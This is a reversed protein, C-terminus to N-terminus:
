APLCGDPVADSDPYAPAGYLLAGSTHSHQLRQISAEALLPQAPVGSGGMLLPDAFAGWEVTPDALGDAMGEVFLQAAFISVERTDTVSDRMELIWRGAVPAGLFETPAYLRYVIQSTSLLTLTWTKSYTGCSLRVDIPTASSSGSALRVDLVLGSTTVKGGDAPWTWQCWSGGTAFVDVWTNSGDTPKVLRPNGWIDEAEMSWSWYTHLSRLAARDTEYILPDVGTEYGLALALVAAANRITFAGSERLKALVGNRRQETAGRQAAYTSKLGLAAEWDPIKDIATAPSVERWLASVVNFARELFLDGLGLLWKYPDAFRSEWDYFTGPPYLQKVLDAVEEAVLPFLPRM